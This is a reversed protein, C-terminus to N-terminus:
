KRSDFVAQIIGVIFICVGVSVMVIMAVGPGYGNGVKFSAVLATLSSLTGLVGLTIASPSIVRNKRTGAICAGFLASYFTFALVMGASIVIAEVANRGGVVASILVSGFDVSVFDTSVISMLFAISGLASLIYILIRSCTDRREDHTMIMFIIAFCICISLPVILGVPPRNFALSIVGSFFTFSMFSGAIGKFARFPFNDSLTQSALGIISILMYVFSEIALVILVVACAVLAALLIGSIVTGRQFAGKGFFDLLEDWDVDTLKDILEILTMRVGGLSIMPTFCMGLSVMSLILAMAYGISNKVAGRKSYVPAQAGSYGQNVTGYNYETSAGTNQYATNGNNVNGDAQAATNQMPNGCYICFKANDDNQKGCGTCFSM